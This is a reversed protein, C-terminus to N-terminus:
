RSRVRFGARVTPDDSVEVLLSHRTHNQALRRAELADKLEGAVHQSIRIECSDRRERIWVIELTVLIPFLDAYENFEAALRWEAVRCLRDCLEAIREPDTFITVGVVSLRRWADVTLHPPALLFEKFAWIGTSNAQWGGASHILSTSPTMPPIGLVGPKAGIRAMLDRDSKYMQTGYRVAEIGSLLALCLPLAIMMLDMAIGAARFGDVQPYMMMVIGTPLTPAAGLIFLGVCEGFALLLIWAIVAAIASHIGMQRLSALQRSVLEPYPDIADPM